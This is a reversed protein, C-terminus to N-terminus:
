SWGRAAHERIRRVKRPTAQQLTKADGDCVAQRHVREAEAAFSELRLRNRLVIRRNDRRRKGHLRALSPRKGKAHKGPGSLTARSALGLLSALFGPKM